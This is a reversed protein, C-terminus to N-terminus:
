LGAEPGTLLILKAHAAYSNTISAAVYNINLHRLPAGGQAADALVEALRIDDALVVRNRARGLKRWLDQEFFGLAPGCTCIVAHEYPGNLEEPLRLRDTM